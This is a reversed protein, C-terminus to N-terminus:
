TKQLIKMWLREMFLSTLVQFCFSIRKKTKQIKRLGNRISSNFRKSVSSLNANSFHPYEGSSLSSPRCFSIKSYSLFLKRSFIAAFRYLMLFQFLLLELPTGGLNAPHEKKLKSHLFSVSFLMKWYTHLKTLRSCLSPTRSIVPALPVPFVM